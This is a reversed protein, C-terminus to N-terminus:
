WGSTSAHCPNDLRLNRFVAERRCCHSCCCGLELSIVDHICKMDRGRGDVGADVDIPPLLALWTIESRCEVDDVRTVEGVRHVSLDENVPEAGCLDCKTVVDADVVETCLTIPKPFGETGCSAKRPVEIVAPYGVEFSSSILACSIKKEVQRKNARRIDRHFEQFIQRRLAWDDAHWIFSVLPEAYEPLSGRTDVSCSSRGFKGLEERYSEVFPPVVTSNGILGSADRLKSPSGLRVSEECDETVNGLM